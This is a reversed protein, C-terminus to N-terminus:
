LPEQPTEKKKRRAASEARIENLEKGLKWDDYMVRFTRWVLYYFGGGLLVLPLAVMVFFLFGEKMVGAHRRGEDCFDRHALRAYPVFARAYVV